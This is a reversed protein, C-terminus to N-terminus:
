PPETAKRSLRDLQRGIAQSIAQYAFVIVMANLGKRAMDREIERLPRGSFRDGFTATRCYMPAQEPRTMKMLGCVSAAWELKESGGTLARLALRLRNKEEIVDRLVQPRPDAKDRPETAVGDRHLVAKKAVLEAAPAFAGRM